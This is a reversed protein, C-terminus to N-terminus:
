AADGATSQGQSAVADTMEAAGSQDAPGNRKIVEYITARPCLYIDAISSVSLTGKAALGRIADEEADTFRRKRGRTEKSM